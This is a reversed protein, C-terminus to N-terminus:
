LCPSCSFLIHIEFLLRHHLSSNDEFLLHVIALLAACHSIDREAERLHKLLVTHPVDAEVVQPMGEGANEDVLIDRQEVYRFVKTVRVDTCSHIDFIWVRFKFM